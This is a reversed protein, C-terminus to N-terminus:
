NTNATAADALKKAERELQEIPKKVGVKDDLEFARRMQGLAADIMAPKGGAFATEAAPDFDEARRQWSEGLARHLKARTDDKMDHPPESLPVTRELVEHPVSGPEALAVKAIESVMYAAAGRHFREPMQLNHRIVHAALLEALDWARIDVAWIMCTVVIEDQPAAAGEEIALAGQLWPLYTQILEAKKAAKAEKSQIGHLTRLDEHLAALLQQYETAVPGDEPMPPAGNAATALGAAEAALRALKKQRHRLAPSTM